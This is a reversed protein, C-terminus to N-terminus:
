TWRRYTAARITAAIHNSYTPFNRSDVHKHFIETPCNRQQIKHNQQAADCAKSTYFTKTHCVQHM